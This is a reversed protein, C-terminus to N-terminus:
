RDGSRRPLPRAKIAFPVAGAGINIFSVVLRGDPQAVVQSPYNCSVLEYGAPLVVANRRIGLSRAFVLLDGDRYYSAADKYTKDIRLRVEGGAPVPRPLYVRIYSTDLDARPEGAARAEAGSVVDFKLPTGTM